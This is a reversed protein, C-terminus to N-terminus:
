SMLTAEIWRHCMNWKSIIKSHNILRCKYISTKTKPVTSFVDKKVKKVSIPLMRGRPRNGSVRRLSYCNRIERVPASEGNCQIPPVWFPNGRKLFCKKPCRTIECPDRYFPHLKLAAHARSLMHGMHRRGRLVGRRHCGEPSCKAENDGSSCRGCLKSATRRRLSLSM